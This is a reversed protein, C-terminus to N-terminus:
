ATPAVPSSAPEGAPDTPSAAATVAAHRMALVITLAIGLGILADGVSFVNNFPLWRPLAFIDTLPGLWPDAVVASNSYGTAPVKGAAILAGAAAPMYGGNAVIALLNSAAGVAVIALGSIGVNALLVAFVLGTSGVYLPVGLAGIRETVPGSFVVVQAAFGLVALWAFRFRLDGLGGARGGLALGVLLGAVVSYLIFM